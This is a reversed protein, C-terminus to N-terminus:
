EKLKPSPNEPPTKLDYYNESEFYITIQQKSKVGMMLTIRAHSHPDKWVSFARARGSLVAGCFSTDTSHSSRSKRPPLSYYRSISQILKRFQRQCNMKAQLPIEVVGKVLENYDNFIFKVTAPYNNFIFNEYTLKEGYRDETLFIDTQYLRTSDKVELSGKVIRKLTGWEFGYFTRIRQEKRTQTPSRLQNVYLWGGGWLVLLFAM